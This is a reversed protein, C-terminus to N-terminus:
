PCGYGASELNQLERKVLEYSAPAASLGELVTAEDGSALGLSIQLWGYGLNLIRDQLDQSVSGVTLEPLPINKGVPFPLADAAADWDRAAMATSILPLQAEAALIAPLVSCVGGLSTGPARPTATPPGGSCAATAFVIALLVSACRRSV